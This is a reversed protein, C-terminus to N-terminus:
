LVFWVLGKEVIDWIWFLIEVNYNFILCGFLGVQVIFFLWYWLFGCKGEILEIMVSEEGCIYVGVGCWFEIDIVIIIGVVWLVVIEMNFIELVVLYEDCMYFYICDVGVVYVVILVGEFLWYLDNELYYCDKFIGFEGEDGNIMLYKLGLFDYVIKWKIGM